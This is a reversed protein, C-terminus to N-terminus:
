NYGYRKCGVTGLLLVGRVREPYTHAAALSYASGGSVGVLFFCDVGLADALSIMDDAFSLLTRNFHPDSQGYGPREVV